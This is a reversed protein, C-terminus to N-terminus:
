GMLRGTHKSTEWVDGDPFTFAHNELMGKEDAWELLHRIKGALENIVRQAADAAAHADTIAAHADEWPVWPGDNSREAQTHPLDYRQLHVGM